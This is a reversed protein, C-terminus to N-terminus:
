IERTPVRFRSVIRRAQELLPEDVMRGRWRFVGAPEISARNLLEQAEQVEEANPTFADAVIPLHKPHIVLKGTFGLHLARRADERLKELDDLVITPSDIAALGRAKATVVLASRAFLLEQEGATRRIGTAVCFDEAGFALAIVRESASAINVAELLGRPSEILPCVRCDWEPIRELFQVVERVDAASECKPLVIGGPKAVALASMDGEFWPSRIRNIRIFLLRDGGFASSMGLTHKRASEKRTPLVSDEWDLVLTDAQVHLCRTMKKEDDGPVFLWTRLDTIPYM